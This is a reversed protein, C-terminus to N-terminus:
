FTLTQSPGGTGISNSQSSVSKSIFDALKALTKDNADKIEIYQTMGASDKFTNLSDGISPYDGVGVGILVSIISELAEERLAEKLASGVDDASIGGSANDEGDTIIFVIANCEFDNSDLQKAYDNTSSIANRATEYLATCGCPNICNQYDDVDCDVLQKFGHIERMSSNFAVLRILLYDSRPSYKCAKVVEQICKEMEQKFPSVSSSGDVCITIITFETSGLDDTSAASYGYSQGALSHQILNNNM